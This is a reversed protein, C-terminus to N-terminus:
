PAARRVEFVNAIRDGRAQGPDRKVSAGRYAVAHQGTVRYLRSTVPASQGITVLVFSPLGDHRREVGREHQAGDAAGVSLGGRLSLRLAGCQRMRGRRSMLRTVGAPPGRSPAGGGDLAM